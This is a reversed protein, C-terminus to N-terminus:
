AFHIAYSVCSVNRRQSMYFMTTAYSCLGIFDEQILSGLASVKQHRINRQYDAIRTGMTHKVWHHTFTYLTRLTNKENYNTVANCLM